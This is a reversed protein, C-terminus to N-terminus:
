REAGCNACKRIVVKKGNRTTEVPYTPYLDHNCGAM